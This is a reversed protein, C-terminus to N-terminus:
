AHVGCVKLSYEPPDTLLQELVALAKYATKRAKSDAILDARKKLREFQRFLEERKQAYPIEHFKDRAEKLSGVIENVKELISNTEL